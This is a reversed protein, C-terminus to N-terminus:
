IWYVLGCRGLKTTFEILAACLSNIKEAFGLRDFVQMPNAAMWIGAGVESPGGAREVVRVNHGKQIVAIALALGAIGGGQILIDVKTTRESSM